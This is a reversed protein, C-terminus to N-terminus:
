PVRLNLIANVLARWQDKDQALHIWDVGEWGIERLSMRISNEWRRRHRGLPRKGEPKEFLMKICKEDRGISAVHGTWEGRSSCRPSAYFNHLEENHLRRWDGEVEERKPGFIRRLV